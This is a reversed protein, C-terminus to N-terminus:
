EYDIRSSIVKIFKIISKIKEVETKNSCQKKIIGTHEAEQIETIINNWYQPDNKRKIFDDKKNFIISYLDTLVANPEDCFLDYGGFQIPTADNISPDYDELTNNNQRNSVKKKAGGGSM